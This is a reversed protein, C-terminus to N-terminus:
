DEENFEGESMVSYINDYEFGKRLLSQYIANRLKSGKYRGQYKKKSLEYHKKLLTVESLKADSFDLDNIVKMATDVSFGERYLKQKIKEKQSNVSNNHIGSMYKKAKILANEYELDEDKESILDEILDKSIGRQMLITIIKNHSFLKNELYEVSNKTYSVDDLLKNEKLKNVITTIERENLQTDKRLIDYIEKTTRDKNAIKRLCLRYAVVLLEEEKLYNIETDNIYLDKRLGLNYYNEVSVLIKESSDNSSITVEVSDDNVRIKSVFKLGFYDNIATQYVHLVKKAFVKSDYIDVVQKTNDKMKRKISEDLNYHYNLIKALDDDSDFIYGNKKDFILDEVVEKDSACVVCSSALAEIYTMGQTETLSASAFIDAAQYYKVVEDAKVKGIFIVQDQLSMDATMKKLNDMDPGDGVIVMKINKNSTKKLSKIIVDVSKEKALRGVFLLMLDDNSINLSERLQINLTEQNALPKFRSLDIGTAVVFIKSKIEYRELMEKTKKSPAIVCLGSDVYLKSINSVATKAISDVVSLKFANIYHTYDEYTTHYTSVLPIGLFRACIRAFIGVGFETHAHIIDLNMDKIENHLTTMHIPSVARYGYLNRLEIGPLRLVNNEFSKRLISNNATVIYVNHGQEELALRLTHISSVVGNIDPLYTDTFLAINM